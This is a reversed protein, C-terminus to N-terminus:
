THRQQACRSSTSSTSGRNYPRWPPSLDVMVAANQGRQHRTQRNGTTGTGAFLRGIQDPFRTTRVGGVSLKWILSVASLLTRSISHNVRVYQSQEFHNLTPHHVVLVVVVLVLVVVVVVVLVLVVVVVM